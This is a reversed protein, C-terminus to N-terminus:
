TVSGNKGVGGKKADPPAAVVGVLFFVVVGAEPLAVLALLWPVAHLQIQEMIPPLKAPGPRTPNPTPPQPDPQATPRREEPTMAHPRSRRPKVTGDARWEFLPM